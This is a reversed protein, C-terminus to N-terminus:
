FRFNKESELKCCARFCEFPEQRTLHKGIIRSEPTKIELLAIGSMERVECKEAFTVSFM